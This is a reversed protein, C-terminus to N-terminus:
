PMPVTLTITTGRRTCAASATGGSVEAIRKLALMSAAAAAGGPRDTWVKDFAREAWTEPMAVSSQAVVFSAKGAADNQVTVQMASRGARDFLAMTVIVAGSLALALLQEDGIVFRGDPIETATELAVNRLRSEAVFSREVRDIVSRPAVLKRGATAGHQAIRTLEVLCFARWSEAGILDSSIGRSLDSPVGSVLNACFLLTELSRSVDSSTDVMPPAAAPDSATRINVAAGLARADEDSVEHVMCPVRRVGALMAARRRKQGAILRYRGDSNQVLLPQLVGFRRISDVLDGLAGDDNSSPADIVAPDLWEHGASQRSELHDVYHADARMRYTPPLGERVRSSVPREIDSYSSVDGLPASVDSLENASSNSEPV